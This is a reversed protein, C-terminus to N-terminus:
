SFELSELIEDYNDPPEQVDEGQVHQQIAVLRRGDLIMRAFVTIADGNRESTIRADRADRGQYTITKSEEVEGEINSAAGAVAGDLSLSIGKPYQGSATVAVGELEGLEVLYSTLEIQADGIPVTESSEEPEGPLLLSFGPGDFRVLENDDQTKGGDKTDGSCGSVLVLCVLLLIGTIRRM